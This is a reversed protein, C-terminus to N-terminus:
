SQLRLRTQGRVSELHCRTGEKVQILKVQCSNKCKVTKEARWLGSYNRDWLTFQLSNALSESVKDALLNNHHDYLEAAGRPNHCRVTVEREKSDVVLVEQGEERLSGVVDAELYLGAGDEQHPCVSSWDSRVLPFLLLLRLRLM